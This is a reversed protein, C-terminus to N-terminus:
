GGRIESHNALFWAYTSRLGEELSIKSTYGLAKLKSVDSCKVPTGDPKTTDFDFRGTYGVVAAIRQALELITGDVGTGVNVHSLESYREVLFVLAQALDDVHMFERRPAGTGWLTVSPANSLKADHLKRMLAPLVHSNKLDFNDNPGYLNTPM